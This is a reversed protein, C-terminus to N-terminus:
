AACAAHIRLDLGVDGTEIRRSVQSERCFRQDQLDQATIGGDRMAMYLEEVGRLANWHPMAAPLAGTLADGRVRCSRHEGAGPDFSIRSGPITRAVMEALDGVRYNESTGCVVFTRAHVRARDSELCATVARVIDRVHVLPLWAAGDSPRSVAGGACAEAAMANLPTDLRLRPSAGYAHAFRLAVPSFGADALLAIDREALIKSRGYATVPSPTSHEDLFMEGSGANMASCTSALIFREVGARRALEAVRAAARHNVQMTLQPNMDGLGDSSIGALHVVADVRSFDTVDADRIDKRIEPVPAIFSEPGFTCGRYLDSDFGTVEHGRALLTPTLLTGIYGLHGTILIRM